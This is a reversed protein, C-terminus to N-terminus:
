PSDGPMLHEHIRKVSGPILRGDRDYRLLIVWDFVRDPWKGHPLLSEPNAGLARLLDPIDGHRWSILIRQGPRSDRLAAALQVSQTTKFHVDIRLNAAKAFPEATLRPRQSQKSDKGAFIADPTLPKSDITLTQFYHAYAEARAQGAPSLGAGTEPKEAHRIILLTADKPGVQADAALARLVAFLVVGFWVVSIRKSELKIM